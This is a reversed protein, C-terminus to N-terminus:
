GINERLITLRRDILNLPLIFRSRIELVEIKLSKSITPRIASALIIIM